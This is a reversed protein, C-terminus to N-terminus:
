GAAQGVPVVVDVAVRRDALLTAVVGLLLMLLAGVSYAVDNGHVIAAEVARDARRAQRAVVRQQRRAAVRRAHPRQAKKAVQAAPPAQRQVDALQGQASSAAITVLLAVGLAAAVQQITNIVASTVGTDRDPIGAFAITNAAVYALGSGLGTLALAPLVDTAYSSDADLRTLYLMAVTACLTGAGILLRPSAVRLLRLSVLAAGMAAVATPVFSLGAQAAGMDLPGQLYIIVLLTLASPGAYICVFTTLAAARVRSRLIRLPLLPESTQSEWLVFACVIAVGALLPVLVEVSGWGHEAAGAIGYVVALLGLTGLIAGPVDLRRPGAARSERLLPIAGAVVVLSIPINILFSWRWSLYETLVGGLILGVGGGAAGIGGFYAMARRRDVGDPFGLTLLSLLAPAMGAAFFGQLARAAFLTGESGAAGGLGSALGFGITAICFLRKRGTFDAVRGGLLLLGGFPLLYATIVWQVHAPELDLDRSASEIAVNVIVMDLIIM